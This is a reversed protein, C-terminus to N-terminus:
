GNVVETKRSVIAVLVKQKEREPMHFHDEARFNGAPQVCAPARGATRKTILPDSQSLRVAADGCRCFDLQEVDHRARGLYEDVLADHGCVLTIEGTEHATRIV